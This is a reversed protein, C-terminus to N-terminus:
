QKERLYPPQDPAAIQYDKDVAFDADRGHCVECTEIPPGGTGNSYTMLAAQAFTQAEDHCSTCVRTSAVLWSDNICTGGVCAQGVGCPASASCTGGANAHCKTCNRVDQPFLAFQMDDVSNGNGILVLDPPSILNQREAHGARLRRRSESRM